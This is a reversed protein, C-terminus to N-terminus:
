RESTGRRPGHEREGSRPGVPVDTKTEEGEKSAGVLCRTVTDRVQQTFVDNDVASLLRRAPPGHTSKLCSRADTPLTLITWDYRRFHNWDSRNKTCRMNIHTARAQRGAHERQPRKWVAALYISLQPLESTSVAGNKKERDAKWGLTVAVHAHTGSGLTSKTLM